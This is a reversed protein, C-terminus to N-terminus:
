LVGHMVLTKAQSTRTLHLQMEWVGPKKNGLIYHSNKTKVEGERAEVLPSTQILKGAVVGILSVTNESTPIIKWDDIVKQM